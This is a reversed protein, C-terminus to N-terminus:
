IKTLINAGENEYGLGVRQMKITMCLAWFYKLM